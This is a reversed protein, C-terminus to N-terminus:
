SHKHKKKYITITLLTALMFMALILFSPFEPIQVGVGVPIISSVAADYQSNGSWGACFQYVGTDFERLKTSYAGNSLAVENPMYLGWASGNVSEYITVTGSQAPSLTGSITLLYSGQQNQTSVDLSLTASQLVQTTGFAYMEDNSGVYLVGNVIAPSSSVGGGTHYQWMEAGDTANLCYVNYDNCGVYLYGSATVAPSSAFGGSGMFWWVKAGTQANLCYLDNLDAVYINGNAVAVTSTGGTITFNWVQSGTAANLCYVSYKDVYVGGTGFYVYGNYAVPPNGAAGDTTYNWISAGTLANLCYVVGMYTGGGTNAAGVYAYDGSVSVYTAGTTSFNWKMAGTVANLCLLEGGTFGFITGFYVYGNTVIPENVDVSSGASYNWVQAGTVANLCYLHGDDSGLYVYGNDVAPFFVYGGATFDWVQVGSTANLCYVEYPGSSISNGCSIYVYGNAVVPSEVDNATTFNWLTSNTLPGNSTTYGSNGADHHFMPWDDAFVVNGVISITLLCLLFCSVIKHQMTLHWSSLM